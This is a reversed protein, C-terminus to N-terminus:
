GELMGDNRFTILILTENNTAKIAAEFVEYKYADDRDFWVDACIRGRKCEKVAGFQVDYVYSERDLKNRPFWKEPLDKNRKFWRRGQTGHCIIMAPEPGHEVMRIATATRSCQFLKALQDIAHFNTYMGASAPTFLFRPLLLNAAYEDAVNEPSIISWSNGIGEPQCLCDKGKHFQWHGLEHAISFRKRYPLVRSDVSIIARDGNAIIRAECGHLERSKISCGVYAAIVELDIKRPDDIGLDLILKEAPTLHKFRIGTKM